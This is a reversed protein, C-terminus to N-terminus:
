FSLNKNQLIDVIDNRGSQKALQLATTGDSAKTKVNAGLAVLTKVSDYQGMVISLMLITLGHENLKRNPDAGLNVLRKMVDQENM